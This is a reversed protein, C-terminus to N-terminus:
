NDNEKILKIFKDIIPDSKDFGKTDIYALEIAKIIMELTKKNVRDDSILEQMRQYLDLLKTAEGVGGDMDRDNFYKLMSNHIEEYLQKERIQFDINYLSISDGDEYDSYAIVEEGKEPDTITDEYEVTQIENQLKLKQIILKDMESIEKQFYEEPINFKESLQKLRKSSIKIKQTEWQFTTQKSVDIKKGLENLSLNYLERIFQLGIM